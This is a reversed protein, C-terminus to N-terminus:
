STFKAFDFDEHINRSSGQVKSKTNTKEQILEQFTKNTTTKLKKKLRDFTFGKKPDYDRFISVLQVFHEPNNYASNIKEDFESTERNPNFLMAEISGKELENFDKSEKIASKINDVYEQLRQAEAAKQQEAQQLFEAKQEEKLQRMYELADEAEEKLDGIAELKDVMKEIRADDFKPNTTKYYQTLVMRQSLTDSIDVDEVDAPAYAKLYSELSDGGMLGYALLPKFDDPLKEWIEQRAKDLKTANTIELAKNIGEATGDFEFDEPVDIVENQILYEFYAKATEDEEPEDDNLPEEEIVDEPEDTVSDVDSSTDDVVEEIEETTEEDPIVVDEELDIIEDLNM